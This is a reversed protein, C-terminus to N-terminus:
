HKLSSKDIGYRNLLIDAKSKIDDPADSNIIARFDSKADGIWGRKLSTELVLLRAHWVLFNADESYEYKVPYKKMMRNIELPGYKCPYIINGDLNVVGWKKDKKMKNFILVAPM